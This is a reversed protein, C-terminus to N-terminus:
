DPSLTKEVEELERYSLIKMMFAEKLSLREADPWADLMADLLEENDDFYFKGRMKWFGTEKEGDINSVSIMYAESHDTVVAKVFTHFGMGGVDIWDISIYTNVQMIIQQTQFAYLNPVSPLPLTSCSRPRSYLGELENVAKGTAPDSGIRKGNPKLQPQAFFCM